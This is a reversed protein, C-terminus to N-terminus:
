GLHVVQDFSQMVGRLEPSCGVVQEVFDGVRVRPDRQGLRNLLLVFASPPRDTGPEGDRRVPEGARWVVREALPAQSCGIDGLEHGADVAPEGAGTVRKAASHLKM